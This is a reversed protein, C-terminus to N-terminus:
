AAAFVVGLTATDRGLTQLQRGSQNRFNGMHDSLPVRRRAELDEQLM